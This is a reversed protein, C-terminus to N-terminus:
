GNVVMFEFGKTLPEDRKEKPSFELVIIGTELASLRKPYELIKLDEDFVKPNTLEVPWIRTNKVEIMIKKSRGSETIGFDIKDTIEQNNIYYKVM